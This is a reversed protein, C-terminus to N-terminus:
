RNGLLPYIQACNESAVFGLENEEEGTLLFLHLPLRRCAAHLEHRVAAVSEPSACLVLVDVDSAKNFAHVASGFVYWVAGPAVPEIREAEARLFELVNEFTM